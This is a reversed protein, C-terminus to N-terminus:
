VRYELETVINTILSVIKGILTTFLIAVFMILAMGVITGLFTIINKFMSYDHTVMTAFFVLLGMWVFAISVVLTILGVEAETVFNSFFTAPIILM